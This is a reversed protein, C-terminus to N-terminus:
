SSPDVIKLRAFYQRYFVRGRTLLRDAASLAHAGILFDSAICSRRGGLSRYRRWAEAGKVSAAESLPDFAVTLDTMARRFEESSQFATATEAWVAECALLAGESLCQRVPGPRYSESTQTPVSCM